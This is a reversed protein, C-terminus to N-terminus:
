AKARELLEGILGATKGTLTKCKFCKEGQWYEKLQAPDAWNVQVIDRCLISGGAIEKEFRRLFERSYRWMKMDAEEGVKDRGFLLGIAALGGIAAGCVEGHGGLGGGFPDVARILDDNKKGLKEQAVV